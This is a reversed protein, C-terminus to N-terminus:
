LVLPPSLSVSNFSNATLGVLSGGEARATVICVGTAFLGLAARFQQADAPDTTTGPAEAAPDLRTPPAPPISM